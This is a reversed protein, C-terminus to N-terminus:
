FQKCLLFIHEKFFVVNQIIMLCSWKFIFAHLRSINSLIYSYKSYTHSSWLKFGWYSCLIICPELYRCGCCQPFSCSVSPDWSSVPWGDRFCCDELKTLLRTELGCPPLYHFFISLGRLFLANCVQTHASM